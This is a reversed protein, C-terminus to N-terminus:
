TSVVQKANIPWYFSDMKGFCKCPQSTCDNDFNYVTMRLIFHVIKNSFFCQSCAILDVLLLLTLQGLPRQFVGHILIPKLSSVQAWLPSPEELRQSSKPTNEVSNYEIKIPQPLKLTKISSESQNGISIQNQAFGLTNPFTILQPTINPLSYTYAM